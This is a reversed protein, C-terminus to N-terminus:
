RKNATSGDKKVPLREPQSLFLVSRSIASCLFPLKILERQLATSVLHTVTTFFNM